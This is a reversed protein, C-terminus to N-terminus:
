VNVDDLQQTVVVQGQATLSIGDPGDELLEKEVLRNVVNTARAADGDLVNAFDIDGGTAYVTVLLRKEADNLDIDAIEDLLTGYEIRLFRGLLNLRRTSLPSILSTVADGDDAHKVLLTPRSTGDPAREARDFGIVDTIDISFSGNQTRCTVREPTIALRAKRVPSDTVRGGVRAPHKVEAKTDRLLCKFLVTRFSDITGDDGEVLITEVADDTQYGITITSDFLDRLNPPVSGVVVDVVKSLPVTIREDDAAVVLRKPSMVIRGTHPDEDIGGKPNRAFRGVFDAVAAEDGSM